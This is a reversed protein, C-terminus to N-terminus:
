LKLFISNFMNYFVTFASIRLSIVIFFIPGPYFGQGTKLGYGIFVLIFTCGQKSFHLIKKLNISLRPQIDINQLSSPTVFSGARM